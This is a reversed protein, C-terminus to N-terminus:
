PRSSSRMIGHLLEPNETAVGDVHLELARKLDAENNINWAIVKKFRKHAELVLAGSLIEVRERFLPAILFDGKIGGVGQLGLTALMSIREAEDFSSATLWTPRLNRYEVLPPTQPSSFVFREFAGARQIRETIDIGAPLSNDLLEAWIATKRYRKVVDDLTPVNPTGSETAAKQVEALTLDRIFAGTQGVRDESHAILRYDKTLRLPVHLWAGSKEAHDFAEFTNAPKEGSGGNLAVVVFDKKLLPHDKAEYIRSAGCARLFTSGAALFGVTGFTLLLLRLSAKM